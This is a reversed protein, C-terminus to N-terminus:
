LFFFFPRKNTCSYSPIQDTELFGRLIKNRAKLTFYQFSLHKSVSLSSCSILPYYQPACHDFQAGVPYVIIFALGESISLWIYAQGSGLQRNLQTM